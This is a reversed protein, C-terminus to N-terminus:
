MPVEDPPIYGEKVRKEKRWTGDPRKSAPIFLEGLYFKSILKINNFNFKYNIVQLLMKLLM